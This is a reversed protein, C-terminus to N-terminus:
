LEDEELEDECGEDAVWAVVLQDLSKKFRSPPASKWAPAQAVALVLDVVRGELEYATSATNGLESVLGLTWPAFSDFARGTRDASM